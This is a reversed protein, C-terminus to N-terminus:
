HCSDLLNQEIRVKIGVRSSGPLVLCNILGYGRLRASSDFVTEKQDVNLDFHLVTTNLKEGNLEKGLLATVLNSVLARTPSFSHTTNTLIQGM